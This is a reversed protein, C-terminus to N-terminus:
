IQDTPHHVSCARASQIRNFWQLIVYTTPCAVITSTYYLAHPHASPNRHRQGKCERHQHRCIQDPPRHWSCARASKPNGAPPLDTTVITHGKNRNIPPPNPLAKSSHSTHQAAQRHKCGIASLMSGLANQRHTDDIRYKNPTNLLRQHAISNRHTQKKPLQKPEKKVATGKRKQNQNQPHSAAKCLNLISTRGQQM